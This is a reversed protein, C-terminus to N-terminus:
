ALLPASQKLCSYDIIAASAQEALFRYLHLFNLIHHLSEQLGDAERREVLGRARPQPVQGVGDVIARPEHLPAGLQQQVLCRAEGIGRRETIVLAGLYRAQAALGFRCAFRLRYRLRHCSNM